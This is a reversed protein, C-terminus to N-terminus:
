GDDGAGRRSDALLRGPQEGALAPAAHEDRAALVLELTEGGLEPTLGLDLDAVDGVALRNGRRRGPNEFPM